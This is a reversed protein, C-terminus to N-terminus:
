DQAHAEVYARLVANIRSRYDRGQRRFWALIDPDIHLTEQTGTGELSSIQANKCWDRPIDRWAPDAAIAAELQEESMADVAAWDTESPLAELEEATYREIRANKRV